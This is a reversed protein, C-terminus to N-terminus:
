VRFHLSGADGVRFFISRGNLFVSQFNEKDYYLEITNKKLVSVIGNYLRKNEKRFKSASKKTASM